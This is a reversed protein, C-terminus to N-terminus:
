PMLWYKHVNKGAENLSFDSHYEELMGDGIKKCM